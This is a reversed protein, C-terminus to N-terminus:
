MRRGCRVGGGRCSARGIEVHAGEHALISSAFGGFFLSWWAGRSEPETASTNDGALQAALSRAPLTLLVACLTFVTCGTVLRNKLDSSCVDSSWDSAYRTHR